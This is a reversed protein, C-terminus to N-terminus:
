GFYKQLLGFVDTKLRQWCTSKQHQLRLAFATGIIEFINYQLTSSVQFSYGLNTVHNELPAILKLYTAHKTKIEKFYNVGHLIKLM